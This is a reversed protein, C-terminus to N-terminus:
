KNEKIEKNIVKIKGNNEIQSIQNTERHIRTSDIPGTSDCQVISENFKTIIRYNNDITLDSYCHYDCGDGCEKAIINREILCGKKDFTVLIPYLDDGPYLYIFGFFNISDSLMGIINVNTVKDFILTDLDKKSYENGIADSKNLDYYFPLKIKPLRTYLQRIHNILLQSNNESKNKLSCGFFLIM